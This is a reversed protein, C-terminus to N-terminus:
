DNKNEKLNLEAQSLQLYLPAFENLTVFKEDNIMKRFALILKEKYNELLTANYDKVLVEDLTYFNEGKFKNMIEDNNIVGMNEIQHKEIEAFYCTTKTSSLLMIGNEIEDLYPEFANLSVIKQGLAGSFAKITAMGIRIGTFSGPGTIAGLYDINNLEINESKLLSDIEVLLNESVKRTEELVKVIEKDDNILVIYTKSKSTDLGLFKM